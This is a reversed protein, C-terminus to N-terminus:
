VERKQFLKLNTHLNEENKPLFLVKHFGHIGMSFEELVFRERSFGQWLGEFVACNDCCTDWYFAQFEVSIIAM